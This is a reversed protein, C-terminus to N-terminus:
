RVAPEREHHMRRKQPVPESYQEQGDGTPTLEEDSMERLAKELVQNVWATMPVGAAHAARYIPGILADRIKPSYM